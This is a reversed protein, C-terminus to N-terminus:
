LVNDARHKLWSLAPPLKIEKLVINLSLTRRTEIWGRELGKKM